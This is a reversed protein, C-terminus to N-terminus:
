ANMAKPRQEPKPALRGTWGPSSPAFRVPRSGLRFGFGPRLSDRPKSRGKQSHGPRRYISSYPYM